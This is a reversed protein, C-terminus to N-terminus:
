LLVFFWAEMQFVLHTFFVFKLNEDEVSKEMFKQSQLERAGVFMRQINKENKVFSLIGCPIQEYNLNEFNLYNM